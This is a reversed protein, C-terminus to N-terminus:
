IRCALIDTVLIGRAGIEYLADMVKQAADRPVM